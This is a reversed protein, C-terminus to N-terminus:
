VNPTKLNKFLLDVVFPHNEYSGRVAEFDANKADEDGDIGFGTKSTSNFEKKADKFIMGFLTYEADKWKVLANSVDRVEIIKDLSTEMMNKAFNWSYIKYKQYLEVFEQQVTEVSGEKDSNIRKIAKDLESKPAYLGAMDVWDGIGTVYKSPLFNEVYVKSNISNGELINFISNGIFLDIALEYLEIGKKLSSRKIKCNQYWFFSASADMNTLLNKLIEIGKIVKSIIYPSVFDFCIQDLKVPDKRIDRKAWKEVDRKTGASQLNVGPMLVSEGDDQILLSFPLESIDPNGKHQGVVTTFAGIRAPWMIYSNSSTKVGRETIGQHVPGLKYMHNSFNTGSGANMFSYLATLMLTSKHHTVTYPGAFVSVAEGNLCHCNAFFLSDMATFQKGIQCGQGIFCRSVQAGETVVSGSQIIFDTCQVDAGVNVPATENSLITGNELVSVGELIAFNGIRVNKIRGCNVLQVNEGITGTESLQLVRYNDILNELKEILRKNHRYFINVYAFQASLSDFIYVERGGSEIMPSIMVGNGFSSLGEVVLQNVNEIYSGDGICYNAIYNNIKNIYVDNGVTCNHLITNYIGSHKQIGGEKRFVKEYTGLFNNGSFHVNSIYDPSFNDSVMVKSWSEASCGYVTLTAIEKDTLPRYDSM